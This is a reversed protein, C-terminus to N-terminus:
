CCSSRHAPEDSRSGEIPKELNKFRERMWDDMLFRNGPLSGLKYQDIFRFEGDFEPWDKKISARVDDEDKGLIFACINVAQRVFDPPGCEEGTMWWGLVNDNPPFTIPRYDKTVERWSCWFQKLNAM